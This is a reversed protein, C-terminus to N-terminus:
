SFDKEEMALRRKKKCVKCVEGAEITHLRAHELSVLVTKEKEVTDAESNSDSESQEDEVFSNVNNSLLDGELRLKLLYFENYSDKSRLIIKADPIIKAM